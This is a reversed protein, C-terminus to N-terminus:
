KCFELMDCKHATQYALDVHRKVDQCMGPIRAIRAPTAANFAAFGGEAVVKEADAATKALVASHARLRDMLKNAQAAPMPSIERFPTDAVQMVSDAAILVSDAQSKAM